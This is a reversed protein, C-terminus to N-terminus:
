EAGGEREEWATERILYSEIDNVTNTLTQVTRIASQIGATGFRSNIVDDYGRVDRSHLGERIVAGASGTYSDLGIQIALERRANELHNLKVNLTDINQQLQRLSQSTASARFEGITM